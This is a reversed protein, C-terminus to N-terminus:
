LGKEFIGIGSEFGLDINIDPKDVCGNAGSKFKKNLLEENLSWAHLVVPFDVVYDEAPCKPM